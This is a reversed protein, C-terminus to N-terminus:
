KAYIMRGRGTPPTGHTNPCTRAHALAEAELSSSYKIERM